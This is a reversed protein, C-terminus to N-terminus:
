VGKMLKDFEDVKIAPSTTFAIGTSKSLAISAQMAQEVGPLDVIVVLDNKGLLAYASEIKGGFKKLTEAAKTTREASIGKLAESSYRGFMIFTAM